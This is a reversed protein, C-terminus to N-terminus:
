AEKKRFRAIFFWETEPSPLIRVCKKSEKKYINKGFSTLWPRVHVWPIEFEPIDVLEYEPFNCLVFHVFGENEEPAITCTSYIFTGWKKLLPAISIFINKQISYNKKIHLIDWGSYTKSIELNISGESSCPADLLVSDFEEEKYIWTLKRADLHHPKVNSCGLKKLNYIMKEHRVLSRECAIVSGDEWVWHSMQSTKGWPAATVDLVRDWSQIDLFNVPIQSSVGQLYIKGHKYIPLKWLTSEIDTDLVFAGEPFPLKTFAIKWINLCDTVETDNSKIYNVRFSTKRKQTKFGNELIKLDPKSYIMELREQLLKPLRKM